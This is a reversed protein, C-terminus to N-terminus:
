VRVENEVSVYGKIWLECDLRADAADHMKM